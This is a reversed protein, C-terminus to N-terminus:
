GPTGELWDVLKDIPMLAAHSISAWWSAAIMTAEALTRATQRM